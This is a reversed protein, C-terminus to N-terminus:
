KGEGGAPRQQKLTRWDIGLPIEYTKDFFSDGQEIGNITKVRWGCADVAECLVPEYEYFWGSGDPDIAHYELHEAVQSWDFVLWAELPPLRFWHSVVKTWRTDNYDRIDHWLCDDADYFAYFQKRIVRGGSLTHSHIIPYHGSEPLGDKTPIWMM